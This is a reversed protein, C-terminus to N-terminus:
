SMQHSLNYNFSLEVEIKFHLFPFGVSSAVNQIAAKETGMKRRERVVLCVIKEITERM